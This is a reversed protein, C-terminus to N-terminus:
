RVWGRIEALVAPLGEGGAELQALASAYWGHLRGSKKSPSVVSKYDQGALSNGFMNEERPQHEHNRAQRRRRRAQSASLHTNAVCTLNCAESQNPGVLECGHLPLSAPM